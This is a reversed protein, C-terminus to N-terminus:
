PTSPNFAPAPALIDRVTSVLNAANLPKPMFGDAGAAFAQDVARLSSYTLVPVGATAVERCLDTASEGPLLLEMVVAAIPGDDVASRAQAVTGATAVSFGSAGLSREIVTLLYADWDVVLVRGRGAAPPRGMVAAGLPEPGAQSVLRDALVAHAAAEDLGDHLRAALLRAADLQRGSYVATGARTHAPVVLGYRESWATLDDAPIGTLRSVARASFVPLDRDAAPLPRTAPPLDRGPPPEPAVTVPARRLVLLAIDDDANVVAFEAVATLILDAIEEASRGAVEALLRQLGDEGFFERGRRAEIVGDTYLVLTDGPELVAEVEDFQADPFEGVIWGPPQLVEVAGNQRVLLPPCHGGRVVTMRGDGVNLRAMAVTLFRTSESSDNILQNLRHLSRAPSLRPGIARLTHRALGTVGAAEVGRGMVDGIVALWQGDPGPFLDYFDGGVEVAADATVYRAAIELGDVAPMRAPLLSQQLAAAVRGREAFVDAWQWALAVRHAFETALLVDVVGYDAQPQAVWTLLGRVVGGSRIPVTIRWPRGLGEALVDDAGLRSRVPEGTALVREAVSGPGVAVPGTSLAAELRTQQAPDRHALGVTTLNGDYRQMVAVAAVGPVCFRTLRAPLGPADPLSSVLASADALFRSRRLEETVDTGHGSLVAAIEEVIEIDRRSWARPRPSAVGIVGATIRAVAWARLPGASRGADPVVLRTDPRSLRELLGDHEAGAPTGDPAGVWRTGDDASVFAVPADLARGALRALRQALLTTGNLPTAV